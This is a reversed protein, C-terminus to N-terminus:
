RRNRDHDQLTGELLDKLNEMSRARYEERARRYTLWALLVTVFMSVVLVLIYVGSRLVYARQAYLSAHKLAPPPLALWPWLLVLVVSFVTFTGAAIKLRM